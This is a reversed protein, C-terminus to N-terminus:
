GAALWCGTLWCGALLWGVALWCGSLLWGVALWYVALQRGTATMWGAQLCGAPLQCGNLLWGADLCILCFGVLKLSIATKTLGLSSFLFFAINLGDKRPLPLLAVSVQTCVATNDQGFLWGDHHCEGVRHPTAIPANNQDPSPPEVM